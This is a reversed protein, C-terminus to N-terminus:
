TMASKAFMQSGDIRSLHPYDKRVIELHETQVQSIEPVVFAEIPLVKGGGGPDFRDASGGAFKIRGGKPWFHECHAM